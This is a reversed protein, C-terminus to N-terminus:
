RSSYGGFFVSFHSLMALLKEDSTLAPQEQAQINNDM